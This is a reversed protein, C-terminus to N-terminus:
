STPAHARLRGALSVTDLATVRIRRAVLEARVPAPISRWIAEPDAIPSQLFITGGDVLGALPDGLAFASVDHLPVFEVQTSSPTSASRPRRRHDPLLDDAPGEEGLRLAPYAQVYRTSCSAPSRRWSSTPRSRGSGASRIAASRGRAPRGSTSRCGSSRSRTTSAWSPTGAHVARRPDALRDFVAVLDGAAIDRSGLGASFSLVRPVM